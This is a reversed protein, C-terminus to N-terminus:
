RYRDLCNYMKTWRLPSFPQDTQDTGTTLPNAPSEVERAHLLISDLEIITWVIGIAAITNEFIYKDRKYQTMEFFTLLQSLKKLPQGIKCVFKENRKVFPDGVIRVDEYIIALFNYVEFCLLTSTKSYTLHFYAM